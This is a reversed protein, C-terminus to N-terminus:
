GRRSALVLGAFAFAVQLHIADLLPSLWGNRGVLILFGLGIMVPSVALPLEALAKLVTRGVFRHRAIAIAGITGVIANVVVCILTLLLTMGLARLTNTQTLSEVIAPLGLKAAEIVLSVMPLLLIGGVYAAVVATVLLPGFRRQGQRQTVSQLRDETGQAVSPVVLQEVSHM